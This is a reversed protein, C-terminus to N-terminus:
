KISIYHVFCFSFELCTCRKKKKKNVLFQLHLDSTVNSVACYPTPTLTPISYSQPHGKKKVGVGVRALVVLLDREGDVVDMLLAVGFICLNHKEAMRCSTEDSTAAMASHNLQEVRVILTSHEFRLVVLWPIVRSLDRVAIQRPDGTRYCM